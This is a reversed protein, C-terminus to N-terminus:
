CGVTRTIGGSGVTGAVGGVRAITNEGVEAVVVGEDVPDELDDKVGDGIDIRLM